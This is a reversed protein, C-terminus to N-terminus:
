WKLLYDIASLTNGATLKALNNKSNDGGLSKPVIHHKESYIEPSLTRAKARDVISYYYNTYKNDIFIM